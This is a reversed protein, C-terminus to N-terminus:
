RMGLSSFSDSVFLYWLYMCLYNKKRPYSPIFVSRICISIVSVHVYKKEKESRIRIYINSSCQLTQRKNKELKDSKNHSSFLPLSLTYQLHLRFFVCKSTVHPHRIPDNMDHTKKPFFICKQGDLKQRLKTKAMSSWFRIDKVM